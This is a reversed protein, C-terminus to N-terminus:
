NQTIKGVEGQNEQATQEQAQTGAEAGDATEDATEMEVKVLLSQKINYLAREWQSSSRPWMDDLLLVTERWFYELRAM